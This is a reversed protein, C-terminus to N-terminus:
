CTLYSVQMSIVEVIERPSFQGTTRQWTEEDVEGTDIVAELFTLLVQERDNFGAASNAWYEQSFYGKVKGAELLDERQKDTVGAKASLAIHHTWEYTSGFKASSLLIVLERLKRPLSFRSFQANGIASWQDITASSYSLLKLVNITPKGAAAFFPDEWAPYPFRAM